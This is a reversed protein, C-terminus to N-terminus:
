KNKKFIKIFLDYILNNKLLVMIALYVASGSVVQLVTSIITNDIITGIMYTVGFMAISSILPRVALRIIEGFQVLDRILYFNIFTMILMSAVSALAAGLAGYMRILLINMAFNSIAGVLVSITFDMEPKVTMLYQWGMVSNLGMLLIVPSLCMILLAVGDYGRGFFWSSFPKAVSVLGLMMPIAFAFVFGFSGAMLKKTEEKNSNKFAHSIRPSVVLGLSTIVTVVMKIIKDAQGYIGVQSIATMNGLMVKDMLMYISDLCQPIFFIIAYKLHNFCNKAKISFRDVYGKVGLWLLANGVLLVGTHCMIYVLLDSSNRVFAFICIIGIIKVIFNRITIKKFDEMGYYLWSIDIANAVLEFAFMIYYLKYSSLLSFPIYIAISILVTTLRVIFIEWFVRTRKDKEDAYFAIEMQGYMQLGLVGFLVFYSLVSFTYNYIGVNDVGLVRSVYPTTIFPTILTLLKYAVNYLYNKTLSQKKM